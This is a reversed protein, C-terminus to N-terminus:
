LLGSCFLKCENLSNFRESGYKGSSAEYRFNSGTTHISSGGNDLGGNQELWSYRQPAEGHHSILGGGHDMQNDPDAYWQDVYEHNNARVWDHSWPTFIFHALKRIIRSLTSPRKYIM